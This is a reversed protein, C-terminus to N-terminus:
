VSAEIAQVRGLQFTLIESVNSTHTFNSSTLDSFLFNSCLTFAKLFHLRLEILSLVAVSAGAMCLRLLLALQEAYVAFHVTISQTSSFYVDWKFEPAPPSSRSKILGAVLM